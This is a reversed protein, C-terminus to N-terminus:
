AIKPSAQGALLRRYLRSMERLSTAGDFAPPLLAPREGTVAPLPLQRITELLASTLLAPDDVQVLRHPAEGALLERAAGTDTSVVPLGSAMGELLVLGFTEYRSPLALLDFASYLECTHCSPSVFRVRSAIGLRNALRELASAEEGEGAVVLLPPRPAEAVLRPMAELLLHVRKVPHLRGVFGIVPTTEDIMWRRRWGHRWRDDYRFRDTAIWNPITHIREAPLTGRALHHSAVRSSVAILAAARGMARRELFRLLGTLPPRTIIAQEKGSHDHIILPRDCWGALMGGAITAGTLHAHILDIRNENALRRLHLLKLPSLRGGRLQYLPIGAERFREPWIRSVRLACVVPEFGRERLGTCLDLLQSQAGGLDLHDILHLAVPRTRDRMIASYRGSHPIPFVM